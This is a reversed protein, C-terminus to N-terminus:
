SAKAASEAATAVVIIISVAVMALEIMRKAVDVALWFGCCL